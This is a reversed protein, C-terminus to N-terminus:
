RCPARGHDHVFCGPRHYQGVLRAKGIGSDLAILRGDLTGVFVKGGYVAAGRNVVDCCAKIATEGPVHPDYKWLLKGSAADLAFVKSWASTTYMVGDVVLPTAEQGRNTDLDYYWALRLGAVNDANVQDLPSFRQESYTRGHTLWNSADSDANLLREDSVVAAVTARSCVVPDAVGTCWVTKKEYAM